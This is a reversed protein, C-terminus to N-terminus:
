KTALWIAHVVGPIFFLLCLVINIPGEGSRTPFKGNEYITQGTPDFENSWRPGVLMGWGSAIGILIVTTVCYVQYHCSYPGKRLADYSM